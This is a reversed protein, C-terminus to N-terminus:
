TRVCDPFINETESAILIDQGCRPPTFNFMNSCRNIVNVINSMNIVTAKKKRYFSSSSSVKIINPHDLREQSEPKSESMRIILFNLTTHPLKLATKIM